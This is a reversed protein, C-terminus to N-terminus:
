SEIEQMIDMLRSRYSYGSSFCREFGAQAIRARETENALYFRLKDMFEEQTDFFVAEKGEDFLARHEDTRDALMMSGCAPIEFTRTTHQDPCIKRLFGLSIRAASIAWAYEDGYVENGQVSAALKPNRKVKYPEGMSNRRMAFMRRPTLRGDALHDWGYGWVKLNVDREQAIGDLLVERRPEWGGLFCVDSAYKDYAERTSPVLPRHAAESFGLPVYIVKAPLKAYEGLEYGKSTVLYDFLPMAEDMLRTRKWPLAFYPDTTYHLLRTGRKKLSMLTEARIYEEKEAWVLHPNFGTAAEIVERNLADVIPGANRWQQFRRSLPNMHNWRDFADVPRVDHGLGQLELMRMRSTQGAVLGGIFLIKM